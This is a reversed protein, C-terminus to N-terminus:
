EHHGGPMVAGIIETNEAHDVTIDLLSGREEIETTPMAYVATPDDGKIELQWVRIVQCVIIM